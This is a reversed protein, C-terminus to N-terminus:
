TVYGLLQALGYLFVVPSAIKMLTGYKKLWRENADPDTSLQVVRFAGLMGYIGGAVLILGSINLHM